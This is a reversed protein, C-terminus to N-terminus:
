GAGDQRGVRRSGQATGKGQRLLLLRFPSKRRGLFEDVSAVVDRQLRGGRAARRNWSLGSARWHAEPSVGVVALMWQMVRHSLIREQDRTDLDVEGLRALEGQPGEFMVQWGAAEAAKRAATFDVLFTIDDAGPSDFVSRGSRPPGAVVRRSEPLRRLTEASAGYDIWLADANRFLRSTSSFLPEMEPCVFSAPGGPRLRLKSAHVALWAQLAPVEQLPVVVEEFELRAEFVNRAKRIARGLQRHPIEQGNRRPIVFVVGVGGEPHWALKHQSLCDLVENAVVLGHDGIPSLESSTAPEDLWEVQASLPGLQQQQRQRLAPSREIVRYRAATAFRKWRPSSRRPHTLSLWTDVALQGNGAGIEAITFDEPEGLEGWRRFAYRAVMEGFCPSLATPYTEYHGGEAFRVAGTSYYGWEPAFLAEDVFDRWSPFRRVM